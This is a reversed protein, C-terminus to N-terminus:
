HFKRFFSKYDVKNIYIKEAKFFEKKFGTETTLYQCLIVKANNSIESKITEISKFDIDVVGQFLIEGDDIKENIKHLTWGTFKENNYVCWEIPTPGRYLPLLSPHVNVFDTFLDILKRKFIQNFGTCVGRANKPISKLFLKENVGKSFIMNFGFKKYRKVIEFQTRAAFFLDLFKLPNWFKRIPKFRKSSFVLIIEFEKHLNMKYFYEVFPYGFEPDLFHYITKKIIM